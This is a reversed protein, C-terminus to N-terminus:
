AQTKLQLKLGEHSAKFGQKLYFSLSEPRRKDTSLQILCCNFNTAAKIAETILAEGLGQGRYDKHIRVGEIQARWGGSYTLSPIFSLQLLGLILDKECLLLLQHNPNKEIAKFAEIYSTGANVNERTKGLPDDHLLDILVPLDNQKAQRFYPM